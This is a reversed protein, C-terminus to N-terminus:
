SNFPKIIIKPKISSDSTRSDSDDLMSKSDSNNDIYKLFNKEHISLKIGSDQSCYDNVFYPTYKTPLPILEKKPHVLQLYKEIEILTDNQITNFNIYIGSTNKTYTNLKNSYVIRFVEKFHKKSTLSEVWKAIKKKRNLSYQINNQNNDSNNDFNNDSYNESNNNIQNQESLNDLISKDTSDEFLNNISNSHNM